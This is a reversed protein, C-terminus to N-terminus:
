GRTKLKAQVKEKRKLRGGPAGSRFKNVVGLFLNPSKNGLREKKANALRKEKKKNKISDRM